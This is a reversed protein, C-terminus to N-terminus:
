DELLECIRKKRMLNNFNIEYNLLLYIQMQPVDMKIAELKILMDKNTVIVKHVQKNVKITVEGQGPFWRFDVGMLQQLTPSKSTLVKLDQHTLGKAIHNLSDVFQEEALHFEKNDM